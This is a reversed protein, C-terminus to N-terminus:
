ARASWRPKEASWNSCSLRLARRALKKGSSCFAARSCSNRPSNARSRALYRAHDLGPGPAAGKWCVALGEGTLCLGPGLKVFFGLQMLIPGTPQRPLETPLANSQFDFPGWNLDPSRCWSSIRFGAPGPGAPCCPFTTRPRNEALIRAHSLPLADGQWPSPRPNSDWRGSEKRNMSSYPCGERRGLPYWGGNIKLTPRRM